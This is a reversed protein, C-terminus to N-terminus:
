DMMLVTRLGKGAESDAIAENVEALPRRSTVMSELPLQGSQWLDVMLPIDRPAWCGGLVCGSLKKGSFMMAVSNVDLNDDLPAAGVLVVEGGDVTSELCGQALDASGVAEFATDVGGEIIEGVMESLNGATPDVVHTAGFAMARERRSESPDSVIVRAAGKTAAGAVISVGIGGAGVVLVSDGPVITATNLAAGTGTQVACGIVCAIDLPIEKSIPVAAQGVVVAEESWGALGLGRYIVEGNRDLRTSGDPFSSTILGAGLSCHSFRGRRCARCHGCSPAPTLVVHDGEVVHDVGHGVELVVGAAEHGPITPGMIPFLGKVISVDSHCVGCAVIKVRVEGPGPPALTVNDEVELPTGPTNLIAARMRCSV